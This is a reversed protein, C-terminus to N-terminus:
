TFLRQAEALAEPTDIDLEGLPLPIARSARLLERAGSDGTLQSLAPFVSTPFYAPVGHRGAYASATVDGSTALAHLHEPTVAPQDCTMLLVGHLTDAAEQPAIGRLAEIGVRISSAMGEPWHDNIVVTAKPLSCAARIRDAESGLVVLIPSCGAQHAIRIARTLLAEDNLMALQKPQGLRTSAGAALLIAATPLAKTRHLHDSNM